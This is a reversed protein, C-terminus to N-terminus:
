ELNLTNFIPVRKLDRVVTSYVFYMNHGGIYTSFKESLVIKKGNTFM